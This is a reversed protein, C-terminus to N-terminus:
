CTRVKVLLYLYQSKFITFEGVHHLNTYTRVKVLLYLYQSLASAAVAVGVVVTRVKVLLYLYQSEVGYPTVDALAALNQGEGSPIPIAVAKDLFLM